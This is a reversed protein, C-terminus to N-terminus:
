RRLRSSFNWAISAVVLLSTMALAILGAIKFQSRGAFMQNWISLRTVDADYYDVARASAIQQGPLTAVPNVEAQFYFSGDSHCETCGSIGLSQRAPRVNHAMPWAYPKAARSIAQDDSEKIADEGDRVFGSGGSIFVAQTGTFEEEIAALAASMRENVQETRAENEANSMIEQEAETREEEKVRAREEGLLEKRKSLAIKVESLEEEFDRRVKLPRRVLEYAKEPPLPTLKGDVLTAWFSPWMLRHPAYKGPSADSGGDGERLADTIPMQLGAVIGPSELGTRKIHHGLSHAISNVQRGLEASPLPGSHCSTCTMKEFHIPPIGRHAPNPAGLRGPLVDGKLPKVDAGLGEGMHCGSCSFAAVLKGAVHEEDEYGRITHHDLANRHCDACAIGARTHVDDDHMWRGGMVSEAASNTHCYNCSDSKPKRVLDFFVMGDHRFRGAEYTLKPLKAAADEATPDFDDKLRTMNGSVTAIGLAVSPAYAFNQEEVQETWAFPSYGNGTNRHCMMCDVPLEGTVKSRDESGEPSPAALSEASGIGGGPMYGGLKEAVQWRSLQLQEPSFTGEWGRYSIPLHTGTRPDSYIWPQGRRGHKAEPDISNFHWGHAITDFDHCRGCTKEPSYPKPNEATPDIKRNDADYLEIWHVYGSQNDSTAYRKQASANSGLAVVIAAAAVFVSNGSRVSCNPLAFREKTAHRSAPTRKNQFSFTM